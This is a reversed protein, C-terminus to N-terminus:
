KEWGRITQRVLKEEDLREKRHKGTYKGEEQLKQRVRRLTEMTPAERIIRKVEIFATKSIRKDLNHFECYYAILLDKDSDRTNPYKTLIEEIRKKCTTLDLSVGM